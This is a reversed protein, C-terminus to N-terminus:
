SLSFFLAYYCLDFFLLSPFFYLSVFLSSIGVLSFPRFVSYHVSVFCLFYLLRFVASLTLFFPFYFSLRFLPPIAPLSLCPLSKNFIPEFCNLMSLEGRQNRSTINVPQMSLSAKSARRKRNIKHGGNVNCSLLTWGIDVMGLLPAIRRHHTYHFHEPVDDKKMMTLHPSVSHLLEFLEDVVSEVAELDRPWIQLVPSWTIIRAKTQLTDCIQDPIRITRRDSLEAM